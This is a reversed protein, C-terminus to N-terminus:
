NLGQLNFTVEYQMCYNIFGSWKKLFVDHKNSKLAIYRDSEIEDHIPDINDSFQFKVRYHNAIFFISFSSFFLPKPTLLFVLEKNKKLQLPKLDKLFISIGDL